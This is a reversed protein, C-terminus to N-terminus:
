FKTKVTVIGTATNLEVTRGQSGGVAEGALIIGEKHLKEKASRINDLGISSTFASFMNAGGALKAVICKKQAGSATMKKLMEDIAPVVYRFDPMIGASKATRQENRSFSLMAHALGGIKSKTDYLMIIACSGVGSACLSEGSKAVAIEGMAVEIVM